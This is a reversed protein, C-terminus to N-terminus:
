ILWKMVFYGSICQAEEGAGERVDCTTMIGCPFVLNLPPQPLTKPDPHGFFQPFYLHLCSISSSHTGDVPMVCDVSQVNGCPKQSFLFDPVPQLGHQCPLPGRKSTPQWPLQRARSSPDARASTSVCVCVFLLNGHPNTCRIKQFVVQIHLVLTCITTTVHRSGGTTM